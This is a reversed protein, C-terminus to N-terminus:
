GKKDSDLRTLKPRMSQSTAPITANTDLSLAPPSSAGFLNSSTSTTTSKSKTLEYESASKSKEDKTDGNQLSSNTTNRRFFRDIFKAEEESPPKGGNKYAEQGAQILKNLTVSSTRRKVKNNKHKAADALEEKHHKKFALYQTNVEVIIAYDDSGNTLMNGVNSFVKALGQMHIDKSSVGKIHLRTFFLFRYAVKLNLQATPSLALGVEINSLNVDKEAAKDIVDKPLKVRIQLAISLIEADLQTCALMLNRIIKKDLKEENAPFINNKTVYKDILEDFIKKGEQGFEGEKYGGFFRKGFGDADDRDLKQYNETLFESISRALAM